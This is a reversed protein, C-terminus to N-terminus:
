LTEYKKIFRLIFKRLTELQKLRLRGNKLVKLGFTGYYLNTATKKTEFSRLVGKRQKKFKSRKPNTIIKNKRKSIM